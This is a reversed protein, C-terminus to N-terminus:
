SNKLEKVIEVELTEIAEDEPLRELQQILCNIAVNVLISNNIKLGSYKKFVALLVNTEEALAKRFKIKREVETRDDSYTVSTINKRKEEFLM